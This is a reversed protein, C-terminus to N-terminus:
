KVQYHDRSISVSNTNIMRHNNSSSIKERGRESEKESRKESKKDRV